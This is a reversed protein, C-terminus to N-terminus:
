LNPNGFRRADLALGEQAGPVVVSVVPVFGVRVAVEECLLAAVTEADRPRVLGGDHVSIFPLGRERLKPVLGYIVVGAEEDQLYAALSGPFSRIRETLLPFRKAFNEGFENKRWYKPSIFVGFHDKATEKDASSLEGYIGSRLAEKYRNAEECSRDDYLSLLLVPQSSKIDVSALREGGISLFTRIEKPCQSVTHTVRRQAKGGRLNFVGAQLREMAREARLLRKLPMEPALLARFSAEDFEVARLSDLIWRQETNERAAM